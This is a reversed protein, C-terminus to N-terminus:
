SLHFRSIFDAVSASFTPKNWLIWRSLAGATLPNDWDERSQHRALYRKKREEDNHTTYDYYGKAGFSVKKQVSDDILFFADYKKDKNKSPEIKILRPRATASVPRGPRM